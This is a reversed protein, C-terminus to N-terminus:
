FRSFREGEYLSVITEQVKYDIQKSDGGIENTDSAEKSLIEKLKDIDKCKTAM